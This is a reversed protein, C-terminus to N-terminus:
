HNASCIINTVLELLIEPPQKLVSCYEPVVDVLKTTAHIVQIGTWSQRGKVKVCDCKFVNLAVAPLGVYSMQCM